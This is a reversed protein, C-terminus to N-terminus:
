GDLLRFFFTSFSCIVSNINELFACIAGLESSLSYHVLGNNQPPLRTTSSPMIRGVFEWFSEKQPSVSCIYLVATKLLSGTKITVWLAKAMRLPPLLCFRFFVFFIKISIPVSSGMPFWSSTELCCSSRRHLDRFRPPFVFLGLSRPTYKSFCQMQWKSSLPFLCSIHLQMSILLIFM